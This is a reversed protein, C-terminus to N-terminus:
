RNCPITAVSFIDSRRDVPRDMMQEPSMYWPTGIEGPRIADSPDAHRALGFGVIKLRGESDIILHAPKLNLHIIGADHVYGLGDCLQGMLELKRSTTLTTRTRIIDSLIQGEVFEMAVFPAGERDGVEIIPVISSHRLRAILHAVQATRKLREDVSRALDPTRTLNGTNDNNGRYLKIAVQSAIKPDWGVFVSALGGEALLRLIQYRGISTLLPAVTTQPLPAFGRM